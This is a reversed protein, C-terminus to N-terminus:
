KILLASRQVLVEGDLVTVTVMRDLPLLWPQIESEYAGDPDLSGLMPGLAAEVAERTGALDLWAVGANATPGLAAIADAFRPEAALSDAAELQLVRSVFTEGLGILARDDTVTVQVALGTPVPVGEMPMANPDAWTITTVTAGAVEAEDVTIGSTADMAALGAFTVLQGIRRQAALVDNPVLVLGAYPESGDWGAVIAGSDIWAVMEELDAGLAAEATRIQEAMAPDEEAATTLAGVLAALATGINGGDSFYLADAPVEGALGRDVNEVAFAGTPAESVADMAFRDGLASMAMAGRVPQGEMLSRFADAAPEGEAQAFAAAMLETFDYAVFALWDSPLEAAMEAVGPADSLRLAPDAATDLAATIAEATPAFLLADDTVAYAGEGSTLSHVTVGLHDSETTEMDPQEAAIRAISERAGAADAVGAVVVMDPIPPVAMPDMPDMAALPIDTVGFAVHGDFWPAVDEAWSVEVGAEAALQEDILEVMQDYLPRGLDVGEIAPFRGLLERLSADQEVSPELRLEIYFPATAPVYAAATGVAGTRTELLFGGLALGIGASLVAVLGIVATRWASLGPAARVSASVATNVGRSARGETAPSQAL